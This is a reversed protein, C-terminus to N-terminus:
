FTLVIEESTLTVEETPSSASPRISTIFSNKFRIVLFERQGECIMSLAAVGEAIAEDSGGLRRLVPSASDRRKTFDISQFSVQGTGSSTAEVLVGLSFSMLDIHDKHGSRIPEGDARDLRLSISADTCERQESTSLGSLPTITSIPNISSQQFELRDSKVPARANSSVVASPPMATPSDACAVHLLVAATATALSLSSRFNGSM